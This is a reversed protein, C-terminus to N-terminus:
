HLRSRDVPHDFLSLRQQLARAAVIGGADTTIQIV